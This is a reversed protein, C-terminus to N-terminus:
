RALARASWVGADVKGADDRATGVLLLGQATNVCDYLFVPAPTGPEATVDYRQWPAKGDGAPQTWCGVTPPDALGVSGCALLSGDSVQTVTWLTPAGSPVSSYSQWKVGDPSTWLGAGRHAGEQISGVALLRGDATRTIRRVDQPGSGDLGTAAVRHWDSGNDSRFVTADGDLTDARRDLAIALFGGGVAPTVATLELIGPAVLDPPLKPSQWGEGNTSTWIAPRHERETGAWGVAVIRQQAGIRAAAVDSIGGRAVEPLRSARWPQAGRRVWARPQLDVSVGVGILDGSPAATVARMSDIGVPDIVLQGNLSVEGPLAQGLSAGPDSPTPPQGVGEDPSRLAMVVVAAVALVVLGVALPAARRLWGPSGERTRVVVDDRDTIVPAPALRSPPPLVVKVDTPATLGTYALNVMRNVAPEAALGAGAVAPTQAVAPIQAVPPSQAVAPTETFTRPLGPLPGTRAEVRPGAAIAAGLSVAYKPHTDLAVAVGLEARLLQAVLPIRSSGGVLLVTRLQAPELGARRVIQGFLHVTGTIQPRILSELQARTVPVHRTLGPLLVPVVTEVDTSLAEKADVVATFLQALASAAVPDDPDFGALDIGATAGVHRLLAHDFDIGGVADDGGAEGVIEFGTGTKRVVSADFTGGGLDYVGILSDTAVREQAAYWTAAAVPEPLLGVDQLGASAAAELLLGRRYDGWEAPCTLVVHDPRGGERESATDIVWRLLHGTLENARFSKDGMRIPVEDGMRRKFDRAERSPETVARRSAAEGVLLVGDDRLFLVSPVAHSRNGLPVSNVTGDRWLGAATYTTGIDVGLSFAM